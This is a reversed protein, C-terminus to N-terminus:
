FNYGVGLYWSGGEYNAASRRPYPLGVSQRNAFPADITDVYEDFLNSFGMRVRAEETVQWTLEADIYITRGIEASPNMDAGITGREDYHSGYFNARVMLNWDDAIPTNTTLVFRTNPYNNEIDEVTAFTVSQERQAVSRDVVDPRQSSYACGTIILISLILYSAQKM